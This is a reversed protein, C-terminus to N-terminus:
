RSLLLEEEATGKGQCTSGGATTRGRDRCRHGLRREVLRPRQSMRTRLDHATATATGATDALRGVALPGLLM